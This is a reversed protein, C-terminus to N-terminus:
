PNIVLEKEGNNLQIVVFSEYVKHIKFGEWKKIIRRTSLSFIANGKGSDDNLLVLDKNLGTILYISESIVKENDITILKHKGNKRVVFFPLVDYPDNFAHLFRIQEAGKLHFLTEGQKNIVSFPLAQNTDVLQIPLRDYPFYSVYSGYGARNYLPPVEEKGQSNLFGYGKGNMFCQALGDKFPTINHYHDSIIQGNKNILVASLRSNSRRDKAPAVGDFFPWIREFEYDILLQGETNILGWKQDVMIAAVGDSFDEGFQANTRIAKNGLSDLYITHSHDFNLALYGESFEGVYGVKRSLIKKGSDDVIIWSNFGERLAFMDYGLYKIKRYDFPIILQGRKDLVGLLGSVPHEVILYGSDTRKFDSFVHDGIQLGASDILGFLMHDKAPYVGVSTATDMEQHLWDFAEFNGNIDICKFVNLEEDVVLQPKEAWQKLFTEVNSIPNLPYWNQSKKNRNIAIFLPRYAHWDAYRYREKILAVKTHTGNELVHITDFEQKRNLEPCCPCGFACCDHGHICDTITKITNPNVKVVPVITDQAQLGACIFIFLLLVRM